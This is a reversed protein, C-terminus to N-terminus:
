SASTPPDSSQRREAARIPSHSAPLPACIHVAMCMDKSHQHLRARRWLTPVIVLQPGVHLLGGDFRVMSLSRHDILVLSSEHLHTAHLM